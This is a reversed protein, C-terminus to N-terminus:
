SLAQLRTKLHNSQLSVLRCTILRLLRDLKCPKTIFRDVGVRYGAIIAQEGGVCTKFFIPIDKTRKNERLQKCTEYGDVGPMMVDLLILDPRAFIARNVGTQGDEAILVRFGATSLLNTMIDLETCDDDIVLITHKQQM